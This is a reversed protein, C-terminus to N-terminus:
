FFWKKNKILNYNKIHNKISEVMKQETSSRMYYDVVEGDPNILYTIITHDVVYENHEDAEHAQYYVRFLKTAKGISEKDGTLGIFKPNFDKLYVKVAEPTDRDPDVSIFIPILKPVQPDEYLIDVVKGVKELEEPCVDPCHTFGFYILHWQGLLRGVSFEKGNTDTLNVSGGLTAKISEYRKKLKNIEKQRRAWIYGAFLSLLISASIVGSKPNFSYRIKTVSEKKSTYRKASSFISARKFAHNLLVKTFRFLLSM